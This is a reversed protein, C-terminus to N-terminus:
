NRTHRAKQDDEAFIANWHLTSLADLILPPLAEGLVNWLLNINADRRIKM